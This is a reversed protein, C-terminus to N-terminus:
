KRTVGPLAETVVGFVRVHKCNNQYYMKKEKEGLIGATESSGWSTRSLLEAGRLPGSGEGGKGEDERM